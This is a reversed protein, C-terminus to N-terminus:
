SVSRRSKHLGEKARQSRLTDYILREPSKSAAVLHGPIKNELKRAIDADSGRLNTCEQLVWEKFKNTLEHRVKAGSMGAKSLIKRKRQREASLDKVSKAAIRLGVQGVELASIASEQVGRLGSTKEKLAVLVAEMDGLLISSSAAIHIALEFDIWERLHEAYRAVREEQSVSRDDHLGPIYDEDSEDMEDEIISICWYQQVLLRLCRRVDVWYALALVNLTM